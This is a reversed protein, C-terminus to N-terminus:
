PTASRIVTATWHAPTFDEPVSIATTCKYLTGDYITYAGQAYTSSSNYDDAINRAVDFLFAIAKDAGTFTAM